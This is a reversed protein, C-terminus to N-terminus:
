EDLDYAPDLTSLDPDFERIAVKGTFQIARAADGLVRVEPKMYTM